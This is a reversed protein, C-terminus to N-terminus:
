KYLISSETKIDKNYASTIYLKGDVAQSMRKVHVFYKDSDSLILKRFAPHCLTNLYM